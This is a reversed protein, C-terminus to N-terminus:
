RLVDDAGDAADFAPWNPIGSHNPSGTRAFAVWADSIRGALARAEDTGGTQHACRDTNNFVFPIESRHFARPRGDLVSTKWAFTYIYAPAAQLATKRAAQTVTDIRYRLGGANSTHVLIEVPKAGPYARRLAEIVADPVPTPLRAVEARLDAESWLEREPSSDPGFGEHLTHGILMPVDASINPASPNFPAALIVRGDAIPGNNDSYKRSNFRAVELAARQFGM